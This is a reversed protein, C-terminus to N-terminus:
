RYIGRMTGIRVVSFFCQQGLAKKDDNKIEVCDDDM